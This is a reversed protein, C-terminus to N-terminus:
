DAGAKARAFDTIGIVERVDGARAAATAELPIGIADAIRTIANFGAAVAIADSLGIAGFAREGDDLCAAMGAGDGSRFAEAVSDALRM